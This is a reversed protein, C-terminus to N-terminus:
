VRSVSCVIEVWDASSMCGLGVFRCSRLVVSGTSSFGTGGELISSWVWGFQEGESFYRCVSAEVNQCM